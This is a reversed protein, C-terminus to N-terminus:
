ESETAEDAPFVGIEELKAIIPELLDADPERSLEAALGVYDRVFAVMRQAHAAPMAVFPGLLLRLAESYDGIADDRRDLARLVDGRGSISHALNPLFVDPRATALGRSIGVAEESARLAEERRGLASYRIGLNNLATALSPLFADPRETALHRWNALTQAAIEAAVERLVVTLWPISDALRAALSPDPHRALVRALVRGIPDGSQNSASCRRSQTM